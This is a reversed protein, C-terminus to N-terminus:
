YRMIVLGLRGLIRCIGCCLGLFLCWLEGFRELGMELGMVMM